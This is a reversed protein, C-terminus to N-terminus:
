EAAAPEDPTPADPVAVRQGDTIRTVGATVLLDGEQIGDLIELGEPTLDGVEVRRRVARGFGGEVEELVFAYRGERDEGVAVGPVLIRAAEEESEEFDFRVEAAMGARVEEREETLRITVPFTGSDTLAGVEFVRGECTLGDLSPFAVQVESGREVRNIIAEPVGVRVDLQDGSQLVIVAQGAQLNENQEVEVRLVVGDAPSTLRTYELQNRALGVRSELSRTSSSASEAAARAADLDSVSTSGAEYLAQVRRYEAQAQRAQSRAQAVASQAEALQLAYDSDDLQAILQGEEVADGERVAVSSIRGSVRFSLRSQQGSQAVGSFTRQLAGGGMGVTEYRVSRILPAAEVVEEGGCGWLAACLATMAITWKM